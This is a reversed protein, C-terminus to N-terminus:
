HKAELKELYESIFRRQDELSVKERIIEEALAVAAEAAAAKLTERSKKLEQDTALAMERRIKEVAGAAEALIREREMEGERRASELLEAVEQDVRALRKEAEKLGAEANVRSEEAERLMKRVSEISQRIANGVPKRAFHALLAVLILFNVIRMVLDFVAKGGGEGGAAALCISPVALFLLAGLVPVGRAPLSNGFPTRM